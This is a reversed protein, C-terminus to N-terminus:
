HETPPRQICMAEWCLRCIKDLKPASTRHVVIEQCKFCVGEVDSDGDAPPLRYDGLM